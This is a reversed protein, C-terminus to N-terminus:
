RALRATVARPRNLRWEHQPTLLLRCACQQELLLVRRLSWGARLTNSCCCRMLLVAASGVACEVDTQVAIRWVGARAQVPVRTANDDSGYQGTAGSWLRGQHALRLLSRM